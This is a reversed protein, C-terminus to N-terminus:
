CLVALRVNAFQNILEVVGDIYGAAEALCDLTGKLSEAHYLATQVPHVLQAATGVIASKTELGAPPKCLKLMTQLTILLPNRMFM